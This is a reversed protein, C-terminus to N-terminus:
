FPKEMFGSAAKLILNKWSFLSNKGGPKLQFVFIVTLFGQQSLTLWADHQATSARSYVNSLPSFARSKGVPAALLVQSARSTSHTSLACQKPDHIIWPHLGALTLTVTVWAETMCEHGFEVLIASLLEPATPCGLPLPGGSVGKSPEKPPWTPWYVWKEIVSAM